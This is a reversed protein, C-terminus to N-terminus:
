RFSTGNLSACCGFFFGIFANLLLFAISGFIAGATHRTFLLISATFCCVVSAGSCVWLLANSEDRGLNSRSFAVAFTILFLASPLFGIILAPWLKRPNAPGTPIAPPADGAPVNAAIISRAIFLIVVSVAMAALEHIFLQRILLSSLIYYALILVASVAVAAGPRFERQPNEPAACCSTALGVLTGFLISMGYSIPIWAAAGGGGAYLQRLLPSILLALLAPAIGFGIMLWIRLPSKVVSAPFPAPSQSWGQSVWFATVVAAVM